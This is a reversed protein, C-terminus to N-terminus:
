NSLINNFIGEQIHVGFISPLRHHPQYITSYVSLHTFLYIPQAEEWLFVSDM